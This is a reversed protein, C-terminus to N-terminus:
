DTFVHAAIIPTKRDYLEAPALKACTDIFPQKYFRGVCKLNGAYFTDRTSAKLDRYPGKETKAKELAVVQVDTLM